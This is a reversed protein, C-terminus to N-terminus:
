AEAYVLCMLHVISLDLANYVASSEMVRVHMRKLILGLIRLKKVLRMKTPLPEESELLSVSKEYFDNSLRGFVGRPCVVRQVRRILQDNLPEKIAHREM